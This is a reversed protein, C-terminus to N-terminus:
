ACGSEDHFQQQIKDVILRVEKVTEENTRWIGWEGEGGVGMGMGEPKYEMISPVWGGASLHIEELGYSLLEQVLPGVTTPNIGSGPLIALPIDRGEKLTSTHRLLGRLAPIASPAKQGRGHPFIYEEEENVLPEKTM